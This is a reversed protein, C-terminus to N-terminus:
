AVIMMRTNIRAIVSLKLVITRPKANILYDTIEPTAGNNVVIIELNRYTQEMIAKLSGRTYDFRNYAFTIMTFLPTEAM